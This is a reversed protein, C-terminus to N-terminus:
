CRIPTHRQGSRTIKKNAGVAIGHLADCPDDGRHPAEICILSGADHAVKVAHILGHGFDDELNKEVFSLLKKIVPNSDFLRRSIEHAAAHDRYFDPTPHHLIIQRARQRIQLYIPQM